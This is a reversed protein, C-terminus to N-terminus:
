KNERPKHGAPVLSKKASPERMNKCMKQTTRACKQVVNANRKTKHEEGDQLM